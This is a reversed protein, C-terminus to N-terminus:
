GRYEITETPKAQGNNSFGNREWTRVAAKWDKMPNKGVRWGNSKYYDLWRQPDVQNKREQCYVKVAKFDPQIFKKASARGQEKTRTRNTRTLPDNQAAGGPMNRGGTDNQEAPKQPATEEAQSASPTEEAAADSPPMAPEAAASERATTQMPAEAEVTLILQGVSAKDGAKVHVQRVVGSVPSPVEIVAKDTELEIVPQDEALNDGVAVLVNIVDGSEVNEGLDPLKFEVAM